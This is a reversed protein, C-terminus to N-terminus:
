NALRTALRACLDVANQVWQLAYAYRSNAEFGHDYKKTELEGM